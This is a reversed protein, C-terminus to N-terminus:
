KPTKRKFPIAKRKEAKESVNMRKGLTTLSHPPIPLLQVGSALKNETEFFPKSVNPLVATQAGYDQKCQYEIKQSGGEVVYYKGIKPL